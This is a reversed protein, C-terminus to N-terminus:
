QHSLRAPVYYTDPVPSTSTGPAAKFLFGTEGTKLDDFHRQCALREPEDALNALVPCTVQETESEEMGHVSREATAGGAGQDADALETVHRIGGADADAAAM